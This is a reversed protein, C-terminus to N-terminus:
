FLPLIDKIGNICEAIDKLAGIAIAHELREIRRKLEESTARQRNRVGEVHKHAEEIAFEAILGIGEPTLAKGKKEVFKSARESVVQLHDSGGFDTRVFQNLMGVLERMSKKRRDDDGM